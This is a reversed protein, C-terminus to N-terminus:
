QVMNDVKRYLEDLRCRVDDIKTSLHAIDNNHLKEYMSLKDLIESKM